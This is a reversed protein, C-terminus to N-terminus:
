YWNTTQRKPGVLLAALAKSSHLIMHFRERMSLGHGQNICHTELQIVPAMSLLAHQTPLFQPLQRLVAHRETRVRLCMRDQGLQWRLLSTLLDDTRLVIQFTFDSRHEGDEAIGIALVICVGNIDQVFFSKHQSEGSKVSLTVHPRRLVQTETSCADSPTGRRRDKTEAEQAHNAVYVHPSV